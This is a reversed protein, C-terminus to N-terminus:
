NKLTFSRPSASSSNDDWLASFRYDWDKGIRDAFPEVKWTYSGASFKVERDLVITQSKYDYIPSGLPGGSPSVLIPTELFSTIQLIFTDTRAEPTWKLVFNSGITYAADVPIKNTFDLAQAAGALLAPIAALKMWSIM